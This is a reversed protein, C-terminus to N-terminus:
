APKKDRPKVPFRGEQIHHVLLVLDLEVRNSRRGKLAKALYPYERKVQSLTARAWDYGIGNTKLWHHVDRVPSIM